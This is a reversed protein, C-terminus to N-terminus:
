AHWVSFLAKDSLLKIAAEYDLKKKEFDEVM